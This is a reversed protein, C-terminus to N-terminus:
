SVNLQLRRKVPAEMELEYKTTIRKTRPTNQAKPANSFRLEIIRVCLAFFLHHTAENQTVYAKWGNCSSKNKKEAVEKIRKKVNPRPMNRKKMQAKMETAIKAGTWTNLESVKKHTHWKWVSEIERLWKWRKFFGHFFERSDNASSNFIFSFSIVTDLENKQEPEPHQHSSWDFITCLYIGKIFPRFHSVFHNEDHNLRIALTTHSFLQHNMKRNTLSWSSNTLKKREMTHEIQSKCM